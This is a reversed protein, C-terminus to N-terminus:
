KIVKFRKLVLIAVFVAICIGGVWALAKIYWPTYQVPRPAEIVTQQKKLTNILQDRLKLKLELSDCTCDLYVTDRKVELNGKANGNSFNKNFGDKLDKKAVQTKAESKPTVVITDRILIEKTVVTTDHVTVTRTQVNRRSGCGTFLAISLVAFLILYKM